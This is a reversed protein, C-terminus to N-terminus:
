NYCEVKTSLNDGSFKLDKNPINVHKIVEINFEKDPQSPTAFNIKSNFLETYDEMSNANFILYNDKLNKLPLRLTEKDLTLTYISPKILEVFKDTFSSGPIDLELNFLTCKNSSTFTEKSPDYLLILYTKAAKEVKYNSIMWKTIIPNRTFNPISDIASAGIDDPGFIIYKPPAEELREKAELEVSSNTYVNFQEPYTNFTSNNINLIFNDYPFIMVQNKNASILKSMETLNDRSYYYDSPLVYNEFFDPNEFVSFATEINNKTINTILPSYPTFLFLLPALAFVIKEKLSFLFVTTFLVIISPFTGMILHSEDSRIIASKLQIFSLIILFILTTKHEKSIKKSTFIFPISALLGIPFILLMREQLNWPINMLTSYDIVTQISHLLYNFGGSLILSILISFLLPIVGILLKPYSRSSISLYIAYLIAIAESYIFSDFSLLGFFPPLFLIAINRFCFLKKQNFTRTLIVTFVIPLLLRTIIIPNASATGTLILIFVTFVIRIKKDTILLKSILAILLILVATFITPGLLLTNYSSLKFLYSPFGELLQFLPGYTFIFDKGAVFGHIGREIINTQWSYDLTGLIKVGEKMAAGLTNLKLSCFFIILLLYYHDILLKKFLKM